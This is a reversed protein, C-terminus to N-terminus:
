RIILRPAIRYACLVLIYACTGMNILALRILTGLMGGLVLTSYHALLRSHTVEEAPPASNAEPAPPSPARPPRYQEPDASVQSMTQRLHDPSLSPPANAELPSPSPLRPPRLREPDQSIESETRRMDSPRYPFSRQSGGFRFM